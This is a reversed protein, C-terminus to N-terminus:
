KAPICEAANANLALVSWSINRWRYWVYPCILGAANCPLVVRRVVGIAEWKGKASNQSIGIESDALVPCASNGSEPRSEDYENPKSASCAAAPSWRKDFSVQAVHQQLQSNTDTLQTFVSRDSASAQAFNDVAENLNTEEEANGAYGHQQTTSAMM